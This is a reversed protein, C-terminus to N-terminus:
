RAATLGILGALMAGAAVLVPWFFAPYGFLVIAFLWIMALNAVFWARASPPGTVADRLLWGFVPIAYALRLM